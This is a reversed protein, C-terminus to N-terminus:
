PLEPPQPVETITLEAKQLFTECKQILLMGRQHLKVADEIPTNPDDLQKAIERLEAIMEEYTPEPEKTTM